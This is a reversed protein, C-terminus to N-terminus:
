VLTLRKINSRRKSNNTKLDFGLAVKMDCLSKLIAHPYQFLFELPIQMFNVFLTFQSVTKDLGLHHGPKPRRLNFSSFAFRGIAFRAPGTIDASNNADYEEQYEQIEYSDQYPGQYEQYIDDQLAEDRM